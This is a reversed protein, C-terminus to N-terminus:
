ATSTCTRRTNLCHPLTLTLPLLRLHPLRLLSAQSRQHNRLPYYYCQSAIRPRARAILAQAAQVAQGALCLIPASYYDHITRLGGNTLRAPYLHVKNSQPSMQMQVSSAPPSPPPYACACDCIVAPLSWSSHLNFLYDHRLYCDSRVRDIDIRRTIKRKRELM